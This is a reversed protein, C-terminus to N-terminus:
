FPLPPTAKLRRTAREEDAELLDITRTHGDQDTVSFVNAWSGPRKIHAMAKRAADEPDKAVVDMTWSVLYDQDRGKSVILQEPKRAM